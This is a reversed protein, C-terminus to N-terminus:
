VSGVCLFGGWCNIDEDRRLAARQSIALARAPDQGLQLQAYFDLVLQTVSEDLVPWLSGVVQQAGAALCTTALGIHEDGEHVLSQTGNCASLTVLPPLPALEWFDDLWLDRDYLGIGSLRGTLPDHFAHSAIHWFDYTSLNDEDALAFLNEHTAVSEILEVSRADLQTILEKAEGIAQPLDPRRGQFDSIALILGNRYSRKQPHRSWLLVQTQLSPIVLPISTTVLPQADVGLFLASWPIQHLERHPAILFTTGENVQDQLKEPLLFEGLTTLESQSLGQEKRRPNNCINLAMRVVSTIKRQWVQTADPTSIVGTVNDETLYYDLAVWARGLKATALECFQERDFGAYTAPTTAESLHQRELRSLTEDYQGNKERLQRILEAQDLTNLGSTSTFEIRLREQLWRIEAALDTLDSSTNEQASRDRAIQVTVTQAKSEEIFDLAVQSDGTTAAWNVARDLASVPRLIYTGALSPQGLSRRMGALITMMQRYAELALKDDGKGEALEALGAHARWALDPMIEKSLRIVQKWADQAPETQSIQLYYEGLAVQCAAQEVTMGMETFDTLATHLHRYAEDKKGSYLWVEGLMRHSLAIRPRGGLEQSTAFAEELCAIAESTNDELFFADARRNLVSALFDKQDAHRYYQTAQELLIHTQDPRGVRLWVQALHMKCEALREPEELSELQEQARELHRLAQLYNGFQSCARGQYIAAIASMRQTGLTAYLNEAKALNEISSTQDGRFMDLRGSDMLNDARLGLVNFHAYVKRAKQLMEKSHRLQGTDSYIQALGGYCIGEWLPLDGEAFVQAALTFHNEATQLTNELRWQSVGIQYHTKAADMRANLEEFVPLARRLFVLSKDYDGQRRLASSKHLWCRAQNLQDSKLTVAKESEEINEWAEGFNGRLIQAYALSLRCHPLFELFEAQELTVLADKLEKEALTIDNRTWPQAYRQWVCAAAWGTEGLATFGSQARQVANEARNPRLWENASRALYWASLAELFPDATQVTIADAVASIAWGLRPQSRSTEESKQALQDLRLRDLPPLSTAARSLEDESIEGSSLKEALSYYSALYKSSSM